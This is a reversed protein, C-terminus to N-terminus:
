KLNTSNVLWTPNSNKLDKKFTWYDTNDTIQDKSGAVVEGDQSSIYNIQKSDIKVTVFAINGERQIKTIKTDTISILNTTLTQQNNKREEISSEFGKFIQESLLTKLTKLDSASFSKLIIEFASKVGNAFFDLEMNSEKLIQFLLNQDQASVDSAIFNKINEERKALNVTKEKLKNQVQTSLEKQLDIIKKDFRQKMNEQEKKDVKGLQNFLRFFIYFAIAAFFIIDIV